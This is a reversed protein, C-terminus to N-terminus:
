RTNYDLVNEIKKIFRAPNGAWIENAPINGSVVSGAGIISHEGIHTGKLIYSGGGIFVGDEIVVPKKKTKGYDRKAGYRFYYETPHFDTDYIKCGAGILVYTGITIQSACTIACNSLGSGEGITLHGGRFIQFLIKNGGGIPNAWGASNIAVNKGISIIGFNQICIMGKCTFGSGYSANNLRLQLKVIPTFVWNAGKIIRGKFKIYINGM